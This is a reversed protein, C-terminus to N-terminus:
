RPAQDDGGHAADRLLHLRQLASSPLCADAVAHAALRQPYEAIAADAAGDGGNAFGEAHLNQNPRTLLRTFACPGITVGDGRAFACEELL